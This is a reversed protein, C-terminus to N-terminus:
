WIGRMLAAKLNLATALRKIQHLPIRQRGTEINAINARACGLLDSDLCAATAVLLLTHRM